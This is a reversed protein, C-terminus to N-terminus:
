DLRPWVNKQIKANKHLLFLFLDTMEL